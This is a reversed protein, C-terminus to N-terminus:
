AAVPAVSAPILFRWAASMAAPLFPSESRGTFGRVSHDGAVWSFM